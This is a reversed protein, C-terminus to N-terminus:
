SILPRTYSRSWRLESWIEEEQLCGPGTSNVKCVSCDINCKKRSKKKLEVPTAEATLVAVTIVILSAITASFKM